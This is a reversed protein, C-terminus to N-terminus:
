AKLFKVLGEVILMYGFGYTLVIVAPLFTADKLLYRYGITVFISIVLSIAGPLISKEAINKRLRNRYVNAAFALFLTTITILIYLLYLSKGTSSHKLLRFFIVSCVIMIVTSFFAEQCDKLNLKNMKKFIIIFIFLSFSYLILGINYFLNTTIKQLSDYYLFSADGLWAFILAFYVLAKTKYHKSRKTNIFFYLSLIILLLPKTFIRNAKLGPMDLLCLTCDLILIAWFLLIGHKKIINM